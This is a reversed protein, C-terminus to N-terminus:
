YKRFVTIEGDHLFLTLVDSVIIDIDKWGNDTIAKDRENPRLPKQQLQLWDWSDRPLPM